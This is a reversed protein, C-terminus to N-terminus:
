EDTPSCSGLRSLRNRDAKFDEIIAVRHDLHNFFVQHLNRAPRALRYYIWTGERRGVILGADRLQTLHRSVTSQPLKLAEHLHCVCIESTGSLLSLLRLRIPDGFTKLLDNLEDLGSQPSSEEISPASTLSSAPSEGIMGNVMRLLQSGKDTLTFTKQNGDRTASVLRGQLLAELHQGISRKEIRLEDRLESATKGGSTLSLLIQLRKTNSAVNLLLAVGHLSRAHGATDNQPCTEPMVEDRVASFPLFSAWSALRPLLTEIIVSV